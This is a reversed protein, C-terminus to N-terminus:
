KKTWQEWAKEVKRSNQYSNAFKVFTIFQERQKSVNSMSLAKHLAKIINNTLLAMEFPNSEWLDTLIIEKRVVEQIEKNEM